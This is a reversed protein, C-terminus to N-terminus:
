IESYKRAQSYLCNVDQICPGLTNRQEDINLRYTKLIQLAYRLFVFQGASGHYSRGYRLFSPCDSSPPIRTERSVYEPDDQPSDEPTELLEMQGDNGNQKLLENVDNFDIEDSFYSIYINPQRSSKLCMKKKTTSDFNGTRHYM